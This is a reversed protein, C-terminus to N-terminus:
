PEITSGRQSQKSRFIDENQEATAKTAERLGTLLIAVSATLILIFRVIYNTNDM